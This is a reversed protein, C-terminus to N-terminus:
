GVNNGKQCYSVAVVVLECDDFLGLRSDKGMM